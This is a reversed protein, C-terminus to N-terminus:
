KLLENLFLEKTDYSEISPIEDPLRGNVAKILLNKKFLYEVQESPSNGYVYNYEKGDYYVEAWIPYSNSKIFMETNDESPSVKKSDRIFFENEFEATCKCVNMRQMDGNKYAYAIGIIDNPKRIKYVLSIVKNEVLVEKRMTYLSKEYYETKYFRVCKVQCNKYLKEVRFFPIEIESMIM